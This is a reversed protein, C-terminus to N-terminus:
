DNTYMMQMYQWVKWENKRQGGIENADVLKNWYMKIDTINKKKQITKKEKIYYKLLRHKNQFKWKNM